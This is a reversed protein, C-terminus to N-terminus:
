SGAKAGVGEAMFQGDAVELTASLNEGNPELTMMATVFQGQADMEWAMILNAGDRSLDSVSQMGGLEPSGISAAVKGAQDTLELNM